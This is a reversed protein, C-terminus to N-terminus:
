GISIFSTVSMTPYLDGTLTLIMAKQQGGFTIM